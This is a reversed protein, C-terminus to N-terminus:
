SYCIDFVLQLVPQLTSSLKSGAHFIASSYDGDIEAAFNFPIDVHTVLLMSSCASNLCACICNSVDPGGLMTSLYFVIVVIPTHLVALASVGCCMNWGVSCMTGSPGCIWGPM